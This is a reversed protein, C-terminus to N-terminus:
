QEGPVRNAVRAQGFGPLYVVPSVTDNTKTTPGITNKMINVKSGLGLDRLLKKYEAASQVLRPCLHGM